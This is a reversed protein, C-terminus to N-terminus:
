NASKIVRGGIESLRYKKFNFDAFQKLNFAVRLLNVNLNELVIYRNKSKKIIKQKALM